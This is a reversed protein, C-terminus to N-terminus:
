PAARGAPRVALGRQQRRTDGVETRIGDALQSLREVVRPHLRSIEHREVPDAQLDYLETGLELQQHPVPRGDRGPPNGALGLARHPFHLKWRGSRMAQLEGSLYYFFYAPQPSRAGRDGRLVRWAERGDIPLPPPQSGTLRVLTPLLDITMWPTDSVQGAKIRGPWRAVCPVRVGGEFVSAKGERFPGASGAHNGYVHWPGNDSTFIVLTERDLQLRSLTALIQGVSDDIEEIVDGYVGAPSRGAFEPNVHLPVHPMSHAVYLFFPEHAHREMFKVARETYRRTLLRQDPMTEIVQDGEILPLPPYTGAKATPHNPWMDNSYPLGFYEDFGHRIPLFQPPRGLHWKGVMATAYGRQKLVRAITWENTNLGVPSDPPLAGHIGLRTPYCGTLLAARSASCVPQAVYFSTFKTGEAALRDLNPTRIGQAGYCGLDGWGLDDCFVIVVNPPRDAARCRDGSAACIVALLIGTTQWWRPLLTHMMLASNLM